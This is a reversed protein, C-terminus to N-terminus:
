FLTAGEIALLKLKTDVGGPASFGGNAGGAALVRHCPVVIPFPNHGMAQGVAQAGGPAGLKAAIEGYTMTVGRPLARIVAYVQQQFAPVGTMDLPVDRLDVEEGALLRTVGDIAHAAPPVPTAEEADPHRRLVARRTAAPTTGPLWTGVVLDGRWAVACCGVATDFTAFRVTGM